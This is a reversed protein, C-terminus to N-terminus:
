QAAVAWILFAFIVAYLVSVVKLASALRNLEADELGIYRSAWLFRQSRLSNAISNNWILTPSGLEEWAAPHRERLAELFAKHLSMGAIFLGVFVVGAIPVMLSWDTAM